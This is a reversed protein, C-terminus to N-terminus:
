KKVFSKDIQRGFYYGAISGVIAGCILWLMWLQSEGAAFYSIGMGLLAFFVIAVTLASKNKKSKEANGPQTYHHHNKRTKSKPM